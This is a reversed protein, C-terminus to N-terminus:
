GPWGAVILLAVPPVGVLWDEGYAGDGPDRRGAGTRARRWRSGRRCLWGRSTMAERKGLVVAGRCALGMISTM